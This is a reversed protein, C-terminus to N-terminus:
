SEGEVFPGSASKLVELRQLYTQVDTNGSAFEHELLKIKETQTYPRAYLAALLSEEDAMPKLVDQLGQYAQYYRLGFRRQSAANFHIGDPNASLDKATVFYCNAHSEAFRKLAQNVLPYASFYPGLMGGSLYDGLGGVILPIESLGLEQRLAQIIVSLKQVYSNAKDASCDNEGQHWLIGKVESTRQALRVQGVAHDFLTGHVAWDDLSSGGEACPILGIDGHPNDRRWSAAFSSALGVGSSPRDINIPETMVQWVGNRLMHIHEDFVQPVDKAFGRGAMNSQGIMLFSQIM